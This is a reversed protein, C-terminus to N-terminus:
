KKQQEENLAKDIKNIGESLLNSVANVASTTANKVSDVISNLTPENEKKFNEISNLITDSLFEGFDAAPDKKPEAFTKAEEDVIVTYSKEKTNATAPVTLYVSANEKSYMGYMVRQNNNMLVFCDNSYLELQSDTYTELNGTYVVPKEDCGTLFSCLLICILIFFTKKL